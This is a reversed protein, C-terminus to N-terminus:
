YSIKRTFNAMTHPGNSFVATSFRRDVHFSVEKLPQDQCGDLPPDIELCYMLHETKVNRGIFGIARPENWELIVDKLRRDVASFGGDGGENQVRSSIKFDQLKFEGLFCLSAKTIDTGVAGQFFNLNKPPDWFM